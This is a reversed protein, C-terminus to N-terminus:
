KTAEATVEDAPGYLRAERALEREIGEHGTRLYDWCALFAKGSKPDLYINLRAGCESCNSKRRVKDLDERTVTESEYIPM